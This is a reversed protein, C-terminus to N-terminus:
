KQNLKLFSDLGLFLAVLFGESVVIFHKLSFSVLIILYGNTPSKFKIKLM